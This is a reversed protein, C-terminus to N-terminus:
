YIKLWVGDDDTEVSPYKCCDSACTHIWLSNFNITKECLLQNAITELSHKARVRLFERAEREAAAGKKECVCHPATPPPSFFFNGFFYDKKAKKKKESAVIFPRRPNSATSSRHFVLFQPHESLTLAQNEGKTINDSAHQV